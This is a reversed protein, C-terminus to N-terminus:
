RPKLTVGALLGEGISDAIGQFRWRGYRGIQYIEQEELCNLLKCQWVSGSWTWTYAVEIWTPDVVEVQKIFEWEQLEQILFQTYLQIEKTTPKQGGKYAREAYLSVLNNNRWDHKPLFSSDVNSYFGIRYCGSKSDPTYIWHVNPCASGRVAGINLTLVSTWPDPKEDIDLDVIEAIYNLPITSIIREYYISTGNGFFIERSKTDIKTAKHGFRIDCSSALKIILSNLGENPYLFNSNYGVSPTEQSAGQIILPVDLPSKYSDQPEIQTWLGATYREHFPEFFLKSLTTGFNQYHWDSMTTANIQSPKLIEPLANSSIKGDFHSLHNQLPYPIMQRNKSFFVASNRKYTKVDVLSRIFKIVVPDGGFIWHGGGLEFRYFENDISTQFREQTNPHLYYSSCIGGLSYTAEYIPLNSTFGAALGTLGSGLICTERQM